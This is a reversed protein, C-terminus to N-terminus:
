ENETRRLHRLRYDKVNDLVVWHGKELIRSIMPAVWSANLAKMFEEGTSANATIVTQLGKTCRDEIIKFMQSGYPETPVRLCFDDIVLCPFEKLEATFESHGGEFNTRKLEDLIEGATWFVGQLNQRLNELLIGVAIHTKGTGVKGSIILNTHQQSANVADRLAKELSISNTLDFNALTQVLQSKQLRSKMLMSKKFPRFKCVPECDWRIDLYEFGRPSKSIRIVPKCKIRCEVGNCAKCIKENEAALCVASANQISEHVNGRYDTFFAVPETEPFKEALYKMVENM